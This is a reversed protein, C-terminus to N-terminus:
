SEIIRHSLCFIEKKRFIIMEEKSEHKVRVEQVYKVREEQEKHSNEMALYAISKKKIVPQITNNEESGITM